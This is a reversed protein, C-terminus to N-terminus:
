KSIIRLETRRNAARGEETDNSELPITEGYGNGTLRSPDIGNRVLYSRVNEARTQSLQMNAADDGTSDTHGRLEVAVSSNKKMLSVLNGLEYNSLESLAASGTQYFVHKLQILVDGDGETSIAKSFDETLEKARQQIEVDLLQGKRPDADTNRINDMYFASRGALWEEYEEKTVIEVIRRMSYHGKGCLEACALEFNFEKWRPESEPDSPDYPTQYEPYERLKQRYEKTTVTPTFIFYTPLGPIADMKVRFHPLYFNHLVDKATIRVRITTDVPLVIKDSGSLLIDDMSKDDSWDVGLSNTAMDILRFDKAGLKGDYGPHRIDWAFQYGTAEIELYEDEPGVDPMIENWAVLGKVVLFTLVISPIVTWVLELTNNHSIFLAKKGEQRRYKYAYWFTLIQTIVFVIGTFFLTVNFMSDVTVGHASAADLPGYGLMKNKYYFASGIGLVLFAIMFLVMWVATRDNAQREVEEEGRIKAALESVKGIQVAVVALLVVILIAILGTM